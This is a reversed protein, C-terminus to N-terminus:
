PAGPPSSLLPRAPTPRLPRVGDATPLAPPPSARRCSPPTRSRGVGRRGPSPTAYPPGDPRVPGATWILADPESKLSGPGPWAGVLTSRRRPKVSAFLANTVIDSPVTSSLSSSIDRVWGAVCRGSGPRRGPGPGLGVPQGLALGLDVPIAARAGTKRGMQAAPWAPRDTGHEAARLLSAREADPPSAQRRPGDPRGSRSNRAVGAMEALGWDRSTAQATDRM